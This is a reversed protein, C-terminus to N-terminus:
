QGYFDYQLIYGCMDSSMIYEDTFIISVIECNHENYSFNFNFGTDYEGNSVIIEGSIAGTILLSITHNYYLFSIASDHSFNAFSDPVELYIQGNKLPIMYKGEFIFMQVPESILTWNRVGM